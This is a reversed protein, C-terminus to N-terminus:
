HDEPHFNESIGGILNYRRAPAVTRTATTAPIEQSDLISPALSPHDTDMFSGSCLIHADLTPRKCHSCIYPM